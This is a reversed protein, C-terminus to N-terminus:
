QRAPKAFPRGAFHLRGRPQCLSAIIKARRSM